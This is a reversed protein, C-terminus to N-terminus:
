MQYFKVSDVDVNSNSSVDVFFTCLCLLVSRLSTIQDIRDLLKKDLAVGKSHVEEVLQISDQSTIPQGEM